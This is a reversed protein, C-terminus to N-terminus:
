EVWGPSEENQVICVIFLHISEVIGNREVGVFLTAM